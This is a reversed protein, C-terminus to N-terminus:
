QRFYAMAGHLIEKSTEDDSIPEGALWNFCAVIFVAGTLKGNGLGSRGCMFRSEMGTSVDLAGPDGTFIAKVLLGMVM